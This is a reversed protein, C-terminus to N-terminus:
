RGALWMFIWGDRKVMCGLCDGFLDTDTDGGGEVCFVRVLWFVGEWAGEGCGGEDAEGQQCVADADDAAAAGSSSGAGIGGPYKSEPALSRRAYEHDHYQPEPHSFSLPLTQGHSRPRSNPRSIHAPQLAPSHPNHNPTAPYHPSM